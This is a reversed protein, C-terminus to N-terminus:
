LNQRRDLQERRICAIMKQKDDQSMKMEELKALDLKDIDDM